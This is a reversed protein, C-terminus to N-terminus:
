INRTLCSSFVYTNIDCRHNNIIVYEEYLGDIQACVHMNSILCIKQLIRVNNIYCITCFLLKDLMNTIM